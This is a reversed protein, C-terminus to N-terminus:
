GRLDQLGQLVYGLKDELEATRSKSLTRLYAPDKITRRVDAVKSMASEVFLEAHKSQRQVEAVCEPSDDSSQALRTKRLEVLQAKAHGLLIEIYRYEFDADSLASPAPKQPM